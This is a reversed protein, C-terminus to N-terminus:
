RAREGPAAAAPVPGGMAALARELDAVAAAVRTRGDGRRRARARRAAPLAALVAGFALLVGLAAWLLARGAGGDGGSGGGVAPAQATEDGDDPATTATTGTTEPRQPKEATRAPEPEPLGADAGDRIGPISDPPDYSPSSVSAPTPASRGPTPDFPLWGYGPFWVEVWSHADRD